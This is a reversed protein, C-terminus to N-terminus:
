WVVKWKGRTNKNVTIIFRGWKGPEVTAGRKNVLDVIAITASGIRKSGIYKVDSIRLRFATYTNFFKLIFAKRNNKYESMKQLANIDRTEFAKKFKGVLESVIEINPRSSVSKSRRWEAKVIKALRSKRMHKEIKVMLSKASVFDGASLYKKFRSELTREINKIGKKAKSNNKDRKLVRQYLTLASINAPSLINGAAYAIQAKLLLSSIKERPPKQSKVVKLSNLKDRLSDVVTSDPDIVLIKNINRRVGAKDGLKLNKEALSIYHTLITDIGQKADTNEPEFSLILRYRMLANQNKPTTIRRAQLDAKAQQLLKAIERKNPKAALLDEAAQLEERLKLVSSSTPVAAQLLVINKKAKDLFGEALDSSIGDISLEVIEQIRKLAEQNRADINLVRQYLYIAGEDSDLLKGERRAEDATALQSALQSTLRAQNDLKAIKDKEVPSKDGGGLIFSAVVGIVILGVFAIVIVKFNLNSEPHKTEYVSGPMPMPVIKIEETKVRNQELVQKQSQVVHSSKRTVIVTANDDSQKKDQDIPLTPVDIKGALMDCWVLVDQPRDDAQFMLAYDIARLFGRSFQGEKSFSVPEYPDIQRSLLSSGRALADHPLRGSIASYLCAGLAYIDTWAGQKEHSENYQEFPAYGITVLSTIARTPTGVTKRAAGFDILVPSGDERLYINAPKIDRHIFGADHVLKLGDMMPVFIDLLAQESINKDRKYLRSLDEGQEYEMVMYASNNLEFVSLVRVINHHKFKALIQAERTFRSLGWEFLEKNEGTTPQVTYGSARSSFDKPFYEKIAVLQDLNKDLALYTVGFAGRGLVSKIEYWHLESGASLVDRYVEQNV